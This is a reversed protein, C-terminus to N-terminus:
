RASHLAPRLAGLDRGAAVVRDAEVRLVTPFGTVGGFAAAVPGDPEVVSVRGLPRVASVVERTATAAPDGAVFVFTRGPDLGAGPASAVLEHCPACNPMVFLVAAPEILDQDSVADPETTAFAGVARGAAPLPLGVPAHQAEHARLRRIVATLLFLNFLCLASVVALAAAVTTTM